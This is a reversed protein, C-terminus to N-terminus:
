PRPATARPVTWAWLEALLPAAAEVNGARALLAELQDLREGATAAQALGAGHSLHQIAPHLASDAHYPSCQYRILFHPEGVVAEVVAETLRSKGIGAEGTLLVLQGEGSRAQRWREVLLALEQDRGVLAAVGEGRRAAFRSELAREGLVAFAPAPMALGKLARAGLAQLEFLEGLLRRTGEAVVVQGPEALAQLRAALNPTDGVVAQEQAAGEGVLDGVVVLGTAIGVRCALAEGGGSLRAVAAVIALGARAAREAEDEHARPWGFYALVGDGMLKAVLGEFRSVEGAVANQYGRLVESMAEPDLRTSLATSGVLDVFMVTLQRREPASPTRRPVTAEPAAALAAIAGLLKKRHGLSAIGIDRLDDGTLGGLLDGDIDNARFLDAYQALGLGQLWDDVNLM